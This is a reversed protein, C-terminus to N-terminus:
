TPKAFGQQSPIQSTGYGPLGMKLRKPLALPQSHQFILAERLTTAAFDASIRTKRERWGLKNINMAM